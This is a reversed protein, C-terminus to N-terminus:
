NRCDFDIRVLRTGSREEIDRKIDQALDLAEQIGEDSLDGRYEALLRQRFAETDQCSPYYEVYLSAWAYSKTSDPSTGIGYFYADAIHGMAYAGFKGTNQYIFNLFWEFALKRKKSDEGFFEGTYFSYQSPVHGGDAAQKEWYLAKPMDNKDLYYKHLQYMALVHGQRAASELSVFGQRKSAGFDALQFDGEAEELNMKAFHYLADLHGKSAARNFWYFAERLNVIPIDRGDEPSYFYNEGDGYYYILGLRYMSDVDGATAMQYLETSKLYDLQSTDQALLSFSLFAILLFGLNQLTKM